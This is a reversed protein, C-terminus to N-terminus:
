KTPRGRRPPNALRDDAIAAVVDPSWYSIRRGSAGISETRVPVLKRQRVIRAWLDTSIGLKKAAAGSTMAGDGLPEAVVPGIPGVMTEIAVRVCALVAPLDAADVKRPPITATIRLP